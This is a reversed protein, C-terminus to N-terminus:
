RPRPTHAARGARRRARPFRPERRRILERVLMLVFAANTYTYRRMLRRPEQLLRYLWEFGSRRWAKPARRKVGAVIDIGGGVGMVFPVGLTEGWAGLFYEKAPSSMAVFLIDAGSARIEAAVAGQEGVAFYGDRFGALALRPHTARLNSVARALVEPRAGLIYVRYGRQEACGILRQMLDVGAVREPLPDRLLKSAWVISQGDASVLGCGSMIARLRPDRVTAVLKAANIAVHQLYTRSEIAEACRALTAEMDLRDIRFGLVDATDRERASRARPVEQPDRTAAKLAPNV